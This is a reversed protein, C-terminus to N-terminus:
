KTKPPAEANLSIGFLRRQSSRVLQTPHGLTRESRSVSSQSFQVAKAPEVKKLNRM